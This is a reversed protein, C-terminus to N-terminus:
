ALGLEKAKFAAQTRDRVGLKGLINSMHNKVTGETLYLHEAIQRNSAGRAVLMLIERERETLPEISATADIYTSPSSAFSPANPALPSSRAPAAPAFASLVKGAIEPQFLVQGSATTRVTLALQEASIDKLSYGLTGARLGTHILETDDFTTLIVIHADPWREKVARTAAIGDKRPMRIDMLIVDPPTGAEHLQEVATIAAEGDRATGVVEFDPEFELLKRLGERVLTQDDVILVRIRTTM